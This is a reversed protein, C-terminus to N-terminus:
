REAEGARVEEERTPPFRINSPFVASVVLALPVVGLGTMIAAGAYLPLPDLPSQLRQGLEFFAFLTIAGTLASLIGKVNHRQSPILWRLTVIAVWLWYIWLALYSLLLVPTLLGAGGHALSFFLMQPGRQLRWLVAEVWLRLLIPMVLALWIANTTRLNGSILGM